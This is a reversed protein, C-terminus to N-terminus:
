RQTNIQKYAMIYDLYTSADTTGVSKHIYHIMGTERATSQPINTAITGVTTGDISFTALTANDNVDIRFRHFSGAVAAVTTNAVTEVNNNRAVCQWQGTNVSDTYRFFVGDTSEATISDGFGNRLTYTQTGSSLQNIQFVSEWIAAGGGFVIGSGSNWVSGKGTATTGTHVNLLGMHITDQSAVSTAGSGTGANVDILGGNYSTMINNFDEYVVWNHSPVTIINLSRPAAKFHTAASSDYIPVFDALMDINIGAIQTATDISFTVNTRTSGPDDTATLYASIFNLKPEFPLAVGEEQITGIKGNLQTQVSSTLGSIFGLETATTASQTPIGNSDSILARNATIANAEVISGAFSQMIRNNNLATTANTGGRAIPLTGTTIKSADLAPIDATVLTRFTPQASIGTTPGAYVTNASEVAKTLTITGSGTIPSGTVVFEIPAVVSVSTVTGGSSVDLDIVTGDPRKHKLHDDASDVYIRDFTAAPTTPETGQQLELFGADAM